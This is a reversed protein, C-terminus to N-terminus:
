LKGMVKKLCDKLAERARFLRSKVTGEPIKLMDTIEDYSFGQIDRLVLVEKFENDLTDICGQVKQQVDKKELRELISPEDSATERKVEADDAGVPDDISFAERSRQIKLQNLRNRSLNVVITYLWTSFRAKGEFNKVGKYASVFTDQVIECADAYNGIMRYAINFMKKQYKGVLSEFADVNGEKCLSVAEADEDTALREERKM